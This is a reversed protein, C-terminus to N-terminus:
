GIDVAQECGLIFYGKNTVQILLRYVTKRGHAYVICPGLVEFTSDDYAIIM